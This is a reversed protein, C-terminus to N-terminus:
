PTRIPVCDQCGSMDTEAGDLSLGQVHGFSGHGNMVHCERDEVLALDQLQAGAVLDNGLASDDPDAIASVEPDEVLADLRRHVEAAGEQEVGRGAYALAVVLISSISSTAQSSSIGSHRHFNRTFSKPGSVTPM